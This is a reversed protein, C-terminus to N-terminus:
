WRIILEKEPPEGRYRGAYTTGTPDQSVVKLPLNCSVDGLSSSVFLEIHVSDPPIWEGGMSTLPCNAQRALLRQRVRLSVTCRGEKGTRMFWGPNGRIDRIEVAGVDGTGCDVFAELVEMSGMRADSSHPVFAVIESHPEYTRIIYTGTVDLISDSVALQLRESELRYAMSLKQESGWAPQALAVCLVLACQWGRVTSGAGASLKLRKNAMRSLTPETAM